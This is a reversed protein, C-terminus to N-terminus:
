VTGGFSEVMAEWFLRLRPDGRHDDDNIAEQTALRICTQRAINNIGRIADAWEEWDERAIDYAVHAGELVPAAYAGGEPGEGLQTIHALWPGVILFRQAWRFSLLATRIDRLAARCCPRLRLGTIRPESM